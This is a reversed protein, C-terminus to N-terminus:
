NLNSDYSGPQLKEVNRAQGRYDVKFGAETVWEYFKVGLNTYSSSMTPNFGKVADLLTALTVYNTMIGAPNYMWCEGDFTGSVPKIADTAAPTYITTAKNNNDGYRIAQYINGGFSTVDPADVNINIGYGTSKETMFVNNVFRTCKGAKSEVRLAFDTRDNSDLVITSNSIFFAGGGNVVGCEGVNDVFTSNNICLHGGSLQIASGFKGALKNGTFLCKDFFGCAEDSNFRVAGGRGGKTEANNIFKTNKARYNGSQVLVAPGGAVSSSVNNDAGTINDRFECNITTVSTSLPLGNIYIGAGIQGALTASTEQNLYGHRFSVGEFQINGSTVKFIGCDGDDARNNGNVDGSIITVYKAPNWDTTSNGSSSASFGGKVNYIDKTITLGEGAKNSVVYKGEAVYIPQRSLNQYNTLLDFLGTADMANDWSTGDMTGAGHVTVYFPMSGGIEEDLDDEVEKIPPAVMPYYKQCAEPLIMLMALAFIKIINKM